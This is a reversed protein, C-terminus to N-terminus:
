VRFEKDLCGQLCRTPSLVEKALIQANYHKLAQSMLTGTHGFGVRENLLTSRGDEVKFVIGM